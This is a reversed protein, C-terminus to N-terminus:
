LWVVDGYWEPDSERLKIILEIKWHKKLMKETIQQQDSGYSYSYGYSRWITRRRGGEHKVRVEVLLRNEPGIARLWKGVTSSQSGLEEIDISVSTKYYYPLLEARLISCTRTIAPQELFFANSIM